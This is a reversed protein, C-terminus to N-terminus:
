THLPIFPPRMGEGLPDARHKLRQILATLQLFDVAGVHGLQCVTDVWVPIGAKRCLWCFYYDETLRRPWRRGNWEDEVVREEWLAFERQGRTSPEESLYFKKPHLKALQDVARLDIALFGAGVDLAPALGDTRIDGIMNCVWSPSETLEKKPYIGGVVLETHGLIRLLQAEGFNMDADVMLMKGAATSHALSTIINRAKATSFCKVKRRIFTYPGLKAGDRVLDWGNATADTMDGSQSSMGVFILNPDRKM